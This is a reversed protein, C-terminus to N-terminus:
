QRVFIEDESFWNNLIFKRFQRHTVKIKYPPITDKPNETMAKLREFDEKRTISSITLHGKSLALKKVVWGLTDCKTNIFYFGKFKRLIHNENIQFLTDTKRIHYILSDGDKKLPVKEHSIKEILTDGSIFETSDLENPHFKVEFDNLRIISKDSINLFSKDSLSYYNGLIRKPFNNLNGLGLPQPTTFTFLESPQCAYLSMLVLFIIVIIFRKM